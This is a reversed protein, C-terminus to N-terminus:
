RRAKAARPTKGLIAADELEDAYKNFAARDLGPLLAAKHPVVRYAVNREGARGPSLGRRIADNVVQKYPRQLRHREAVLMAVVDPDLTLTTRMFADQHRRDM